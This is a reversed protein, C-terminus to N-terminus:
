NGSYDLNSFMLRNNSSIVLDQAAVALGVGNLLCYQLTYGTNAFVPGAAGCSTQASIGIMNSGAKCVDGYTAYFAKFLVKPGIIQALTMDGQSRGGVLFMNAIQGLEGLEYLRTVQQQYNMQLNQALVPTIPQPPIAGIIPVGAVPNPISGTLTLLGRDASFAGGFNLKTRTFVEAM